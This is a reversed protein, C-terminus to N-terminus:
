LQAELEDKERENIPVNEATADKELKADEAKLDRPDPKFEDGEEACVFIETVYM